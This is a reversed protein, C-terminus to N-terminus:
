PDGIESVYRYAHTDHIAGVAGPQEIPVVGADKERDSPVARQAGGTAGEAYALRRHAPTEGGELCNEPSGGQEISQRFSQPEVLGTGGQHGNGLLQLVSRQREFPM